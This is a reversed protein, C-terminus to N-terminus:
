SPVSPPPAPIPALGFFARLMYLYSPPRRRGYRWHRYWLWVWVAFATGPPIAMSMVVTPWVLAIEVVLHDILILGLIVIGALRLWLKVREGRLGVAELMAIVAQGGDLPFFPLLNFIGLFFAVFGLLIWADFLTPMQTPYVGDGRLLTLLAAPRSVSDVFIRGLIYPMALGSKVLGGVVHPGEAAVVMSMGLLVTSLPASLLIALYPILPIGEELEVRGAIPLASVSVPVGRVTGRWTLEKPGLGIDIRKPLIGFARAVAIHVGEHLAICLLLFPFGVIVLPLAYIAGLVAQRFPDWWHM